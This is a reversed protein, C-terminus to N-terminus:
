VLSVLLFASVHIVTAYAAHGKRGMKVKYQTNKDYNINTLSLHCAINM